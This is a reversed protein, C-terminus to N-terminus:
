IKNIAELKVGIDLHTYVSQTVGEGKHGVIKKIIREDVGVETLLSVCTHRTDHPKHEMNLEKMTATWYADYYNRYQFPQGDPTCLLYECDQSLWYEFFPVLKEAIPVERIGANTKSERVYFWREDLHVDEKKLELMESIRVGTYILMLVTGVYINDKMDWLVKLEKKSFPTRDRKNPNGAQKIDVYSVIERKAPPLIEHKVAYDYVLGYMVKLKRLTPTNKGSEDVVKQLHDLKIEAIKMDKISDCLKFSAKYGKINSESVKPAHEEIWKEYVEGFTITDHKLDYPDANYDALAKLAEKQTAYYGLNAFVQKEKIKTMDTNKTVTVEEGTEKDVWIWGTTIRVRWPCRRKGTLKHVSGYGSPLRM